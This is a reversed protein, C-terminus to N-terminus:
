GAEAEVAEVAEVDTQIGKSFRHALAVAVGTIWGFCVAFRVGDAVTELAWYSAAGAFEEQRVLAGECLGVVAALVAVVGWCQLVIGLATPGGARSWRAVLLRIALWVLVVLAASTLTRPLWVSTDFSGSLSHPNHPATLSAHAFWILRVWAQRSSIDAGYPDADPGYDWVFGGVLAVVLMPLAGWTAVHAAGAWRDEPLTIPETTGDGDRLALTALVALVAALYAAFAGFVGVVLGLWIGDDSLAWIVSPLAELGGRIDLITQVVVFLNTLGGALLCACLVRGAVAYPGDSGTRLIAYVLVVLLLVFVVTPWASVPAVPYGENMVASGWLFSFGDVLRSLVDGFWAHGRASWLASVDDVYVPIALVFSYLFAFVSLVAVTAFASRRRSM